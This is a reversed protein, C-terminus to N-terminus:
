RPSHPTPRRRHPPTTPACRIRAAARCRKRLHVSALRITYSWNIIQALARRRLLLRAGLQDDVVSVGVVGARVRAFAQRGVTVGDNRLVNQGHVLVITIQQWHRRRPRRGCRRRCRRRRRLCWQQGVHQQISMNLIRVNAGLHRQVTVTMRRARISVLPRTLLSSNRACRVCRTYTIKPNLM